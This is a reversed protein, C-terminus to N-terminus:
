RATAVAKKRDAAHRKKEAVPADAAVAVEDNVTVAVTAEVHVTPAVFMDKPGYTGVVADLAVEVMVAVQVDKTVGLM